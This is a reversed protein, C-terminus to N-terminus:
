VNDKEAAAFADLLDIAENAYQKASDFDLPAGNPGLCVVRLLQFGQALVNIQGSSLGERLTEPKRHPKEQQPHRQTMTKDKHKHFSRNDSERARRQARNGAYVPGSAM